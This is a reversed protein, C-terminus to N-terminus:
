RRTDDPKLEPSIRAMYLVSGVLPRSFIRLAGASVHLTYRGDQDSNTKTLVSIGGVPPQRSADPRILTVASVEVGSLPAGMSDTLRGSISYPGPPATCACHDACGLFLLASALLALGLLFREM